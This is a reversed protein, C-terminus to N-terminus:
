LSCTQSKGKGLPKKKNKEFKKIFAQELDINLHSALKLTQWFIDALEEELEAPESCHFKSRETSKHLLARATEGIEEVLHIFAHEANTEINAYGIEKLYSFVKQQAERIHM